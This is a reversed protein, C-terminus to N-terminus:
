LLHIITMAFKLTISSLSVKMETSLTAMRAPKRLWRATIMVKEFISRVM